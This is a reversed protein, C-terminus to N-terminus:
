GASVRIGGPGHKNKEISIEEKRFVRRSGETHGTSSKKHKRHCCKRRGKRWGTDWRGGGLALMADPFAHFLLFRRM